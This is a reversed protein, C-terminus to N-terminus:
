KNPPTRQLPVGRVQNPAANGPESTGPDALGDRLWAHSGLTSVPQTLGYSANLDTHAQVSSRTANLLADPNGNTDSSFQLPPDGPTPINEPYEFAYAPADAPITTGFEGTMGESTKRKYDSVNDGGLNVRDYDGPTPM